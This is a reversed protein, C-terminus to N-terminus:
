EYDEHDCSILGALLCLATVLVLFADMSISRKRPGDLAAFEAPPDDTFDDWSREHIRPQEKM